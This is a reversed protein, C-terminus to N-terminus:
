RDSHHIAHNGAVSFQYYLEPHTQSLEAMQQLYFRGSKSYHIHGTAAFLNLMEGVSSLHLDWNSTREARIYDKVIDIHELYQLWFNATRCDSIGEKWVRIASNIKEVNCRLM